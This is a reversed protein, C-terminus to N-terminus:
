CARLQAAIADREARTVWLRYKVKITVQRAVYRCDYARRPPLWAAADSDGKAANAPGDVALLVQPDNAYALRVEAAWAAAGTRWADALAVVHDIQVASSTRVGRVFAIRTGTYPDDLVGRTVVLTCAGIKTLV